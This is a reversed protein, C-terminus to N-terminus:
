YPTTLKGNRKIPLLNGLQTATQFCEAWLKQKLELSLQAHLMMARGRATIMAFGREAVGNQQPTNPATYEVKIGLERLQGGLVKNEGANDMRVFRVPKGTAQLEKIYPLVVATLGSKTRLFFSRKFRSYDDVVIAWYRNGGGSTADVSSIDLYLREGPKSSFARPAKSM